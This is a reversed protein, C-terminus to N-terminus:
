LGARRHHGVALDRHRHRREAVDATEVRKLWAWRHHRTVRSAEWGRPKPLLHALSSIRNISRHPARPLRRGYSFEVPLCRVLDPRELHLLSALWHRMFVYLWDRPANGRGRMLKYFRRRGSYCREAKAELWVAYRAPLEVDLFQSVEACVTEAILWPMIQTDCELGPRFKQLAATDSPDAAATIGRRARSNSKVAVRNASTSRSASRVCGREKRVAKM